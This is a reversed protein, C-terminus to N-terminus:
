LPFLRALLFFALPLLNCLLFSAIQFLFYIASVAAFSTTPRSPISQFSNCFAQIQFALLVSIKM